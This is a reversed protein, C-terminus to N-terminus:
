ENVMVKTPITRGTEGLSIMEESFLDFTMSLDFTLDLEYSIIKNVTTWFMITLKVSITRKM